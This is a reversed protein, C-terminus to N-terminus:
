RFNINIGFLITKVQPYLGGSSLPTEPDFAYFFDTQTFLNDASVYLRLRQIKAKSTLALPLTYGIQVNKLRLYAANEMWYTSLRQNHSLQYTFRPYSADTNDPTWRDYHIRQPNSSENFLAQRAPGLIYGNGKGVGQLFFAFDVGLYDVNGRLAYSYRPFPDGIVKRDKDLTIKGDGDLDRYILDGPMTNNRDADLVPFLPAYKSTARDYSFDAIQAIGNSVLGYFADIPYGVIRVQDGISPPVGGLSTVTNKVDSVNFRLGYRAQGIRDNWGTNIEWGKNEVSGANQPPEPVGLVDPLPVTLLIDNTTKIFYDASVSLRDNLFSLDIGLDTMNISEWRLGPNAAANQAFGLTLIGGIPMTGVAQIVSLYPSYQTSGSSVRQNGLKGWSGRIKANGMIHKLPKMFPEESIRWGASVSPYVDWRNGPAFRSSGDYRFNSEILYRGRFMYNVRGFFSQLAWHFADSNNLQNETGIALVPLQETVLNQRSANFNESQNLEFSYGGLLKIDHNALKASYDLQAFMNQYRNVYDRSEIRNVPNNTYWLDGSDPFYYRVTRIQENRKSNDMIMGYQVKASLGKVINLVGNVNLSTQQSNFKDLGAVSATAVPNQSGGGYGWNGNTFRVPVLPSIQHASYIVGGNQSTGTNPERYFRDIYGINADVQLRDFLETNLRLRVNHRAASYGDGTVLGDQDLYGYSLYYGSKSNGGNVSVNHNQQPASSKFIEKIWNTNAFYNPDTGNRAKEIQEATYTPTRGVNRQSENLLEMYEPSGLFNAQATPKQIGYYYSYSITPRNGAKGRKTTILIVGNAAQSGYIAASAADKLVSVSEIDDPNINDMSQQIGDIVVLPNADGITGIGRIRISGGTLGPRPNTARITLGPILGQLGSSVSTVPRNELEKGSIADVAGTLNIKKQTGYGVVVVQELQRTEEDMIVNLTNRNNVAQEITTFGTYSFVLIVQGSPATISYKGSEDTTTGASTGQVTVTVGELPLNTKAVTVTGSVQFAPAKDPTTIDPYKDAAILEASLAPVLLSLVFFLWRGTIRSYINSIM